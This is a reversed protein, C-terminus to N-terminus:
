LIRYNSYYRPMMMAVPVIAMWALIMLVAHARLMSDSSTEVASFSGFSVPSASAVKSDSHYSLSSASGSGTAVLLNKGGSLDVLHLKEQAGVSFMEMSKM